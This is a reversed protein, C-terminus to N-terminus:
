DIKNTNIYNKLLDFMESPIEVEYVVNIIKLKGDSTIDYKNYPM